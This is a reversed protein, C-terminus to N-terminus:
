GMGWCPKLRTSAVSMLVYYVRLVQGSGLRLLNGNCCIKPASESRTATEIAISRVADNRFQARALCFIDAVRAYLLCRVKCDLETQLTLALMLSTASSVLLHCNRSLQLCLSWEPLGNEVADERSSDYLSLIPQCLSGTM